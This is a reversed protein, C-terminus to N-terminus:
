SVVTLEGGAPVIELDQSSRIQGGDVDIDEIFRVRATAPYVTIPYAFGVKELRWSSDSSYIGWRWRTNSTTSRSEFPPTTSFQTSLINSSFTGTTGSIAGFSGSGTTTVSNSGANITGTTINGLSWAGIGSHWSGSTARTTASTVISDIFPTYDKANKTFRIGNASNIKSVANTYATDISTGQWTASSFTEM